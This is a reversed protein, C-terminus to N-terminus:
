QPWAPAAVTSASRPGERALPAASRTGRHPEDGCISPLVRRDGRAYQEWRGASVEVGALDDLRTARGAATACPWLGAGSSRASKAEEVPVESRRATLRASPPTGRGFSIAARTAARGLGNAIETARIFTPARSRRGCRAPRASRGRHASAAGAGRDGGRGRSDWSSAVHCARQAGRRTAARWQM